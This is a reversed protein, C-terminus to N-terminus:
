EEIFDDKFTPLNSPIGAKYYISKDEALKMSQNLSSDGIGFANIRRTSAIDSESANQSNEDQMQNSLQM